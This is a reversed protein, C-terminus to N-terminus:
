RLSTPSITLSMYLALYMSKMTLRECRHNSQKEKYGGARKTDRMRNKGSRERLSVTVKCQSTQNVVVVEGEAEIQEAGVVGEFGV